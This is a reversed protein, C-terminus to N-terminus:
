HSRWKGDPTYKLANDLLISLLQRIANEDGTYSLMPQISLM